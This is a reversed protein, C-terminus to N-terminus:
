WRRRNLDFRIENFEMRCDMFFDIQTPSAQQESAAHEEEGNPGGSLGDSGIGGARGLGNSSVTEPLLADGQDPLPM